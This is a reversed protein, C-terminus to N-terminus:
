NELINISFIKNKFKKLFFVKDQWYEKVEEISLQYLFDLGSVIARKAVGKDTTIVVGGWFSATSVLIADPTITTSTAPVFIASNKVWAFKHPTELINGSSTASSLEKDFIFDVVAFNNGCAEQFFPISHNDLRWIFGTDLFSTKGSSSLFNMAQGFTLISFSGGTFQVFPLQGDIKSM